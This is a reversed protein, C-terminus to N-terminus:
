LTLCPASAHRTYAYPIPQSLIAECRGALYMWEALVGDMTARYYEPMGGAQAIILTVMQAAGARYDKCGALWAAEHSLLLVQLRPGQQRM